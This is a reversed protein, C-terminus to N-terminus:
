DDGDDPVALPITFLFRTGPKTPEYWLRGGHAAVISRSISLGMGTGSTKTTVFPDFLREGIEPPVGPGFDRVWIRAADRGPEAAYGVEITSGKGPNTETVEIANRILNLIVQQVQISDVIVELGPDGRSIRLALDRSNADVRALRLSDSVIDALRARDRLRDQSRILARIREVIKGARLSQEDAKALLERLRAIDPDDSDLRRRCAQVYSSIASLPQNIEHAIGSAMEGMTSVRDVHALRERAESAEQEARVQDTRDVLQAIFREPEGDADYLIACHLVAHIVSGDRHLYRSNVVFTERDGGLLRMRHLRTAEVEDPHLLATYPIRLLEPEEYGMLECAAQNAELIRDGPDISLIGIPARGLTVQLEEERERLCEESERLAREYRERESLDRLIGVFYLRGADSYEGVSLEVPMPRGDARLATVRRGIGIINAHGTQLYQRLYGDHRHRDPEAMLLSVNRGVVDQTRYGFLREAAHNFNLISGRSDIIVVADAAAGMLAAFGSPTLELHADPESTADPQMM